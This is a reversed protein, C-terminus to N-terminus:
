ASISDIATFVPRLASLTQYKKRFASLESLASRLLEAIQEEDNLVVTIPKYDEQVRVFARVPQQQKGASDESVTVISRIVLRAQDERYKEAAVADDWEFCPHLPSSIDRSEEVVTSPEIGGREQYIRELEEGATQPDIPLLGPIKWQYIM